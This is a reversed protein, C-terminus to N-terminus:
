SIIGQSVAMKILKATNNANFKLLLNKRHSDVTSCSICLEKAISQNTLGDSILSLIEIERKTLAPKQSNKVAERNMLGKVEKGLYFNGDMVSQVAEKIEALDSTKLIIGNVGNRILQETINLQSVSIIALIRQDPKRSKVVSCFEIGNLGPLQIDIIIIDFHHGNLFNFGKNGTATIICEIGANSNFVVQKLTEAVMPHDEIILIKKDM